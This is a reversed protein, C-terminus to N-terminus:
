TGGTRIRASGDSRSYMEVWPYTTAVCGYKLVCNDVRGQRFSFHGSRPYGKVREYYYGNSGVIGQYYAFPDADTIRTSTNVDYIRKVGKVNEWCWRKVQHFKYFTAGLFTKARRFVDLQRCGRQTNPSGVEWTNTPHKLRHTKVSPQCLRPDEPDPCNPPTWTSTTVGDAPGPAPYVVVHGRTQPDDAAAQYNPSFVPPKTPDAGVKDEDAVAVGMSATLALGVVCALIARIRGAMSEEKRDDRHLLHGPSQKRPDWSLDPEGWRV